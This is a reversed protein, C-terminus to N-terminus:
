KKEKFMQILQKIADDQITSINDELLFEAGNCLFIIGMENDFLMFSRLGYACGFHGILYHDTYGDLLIMQLGKQKYLSDDVINAFHVSTALTVIESSLIHKDKFTGKNMLMQMIKSLDVLNIFLGGAPGRFNNGLIFKNYCRDLFMEKNRELKFGNDYIYLSAIQEKNIIDSVYFSADIELPDFLIKKLYSNYNMNTKQEIICALIGTGFNSYEFHTGPKHNSYTKPTYYQYTTDTLLHELSVYFKSGNVGDYGVNECASDSISSTHTLLMKITIKDDIFKPNRVRFGLYTSIDEDLVIKKEDILRFIAIAIIVKSISAIRYITNLNTEQHNYDMYGATGHYISKEKDFLGISLGVAHYKKVLYKTLDEM